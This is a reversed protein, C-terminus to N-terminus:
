TWGEEKIQEGKNKINVGWKKSIKRKYIQIRAGMEWKQM